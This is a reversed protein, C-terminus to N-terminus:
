IFFGMKSHQLLASLMSCLCLSLVLHHHHPRTFGWKRGWTLGTKHELSSVSAAPVEVCLHEAWTCSASSESGYEWWSGTKQTDTAWVLPACLGATGLLVSPVSLGAGGKGWPRLKSSLSPSPSCRQRCLYGFRQPSSHGFLSLVLLLPLDSHNLFTGKNHQWQRALPVNLLSAKYTQLLLVSRCSLHSLKNVYSKTM